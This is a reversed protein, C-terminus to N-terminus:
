QGTSAPTLAIKREPPVGPRLKASLLEALDNIQQRSAFVEPTHLGRFSVPLKCAAIKVPILKNAEAATEAEGRVWRPGGSNPAGLGRVAKADDIAREIADHIEGGAVLRRDWWVGLGNAELLEALKAAVALDERAYSLFIDAMDFRGDRRTS